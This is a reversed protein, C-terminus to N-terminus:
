KKRRYCRILPSVCETAFSPPFLLPISKSRDLIVGAAKITARKQATGTIVSSRTETRMEREDVIKMILKLSSPLPVLKIAVVVLLLFLLMPMKIQNWFAWVFISCMNISYKKKESGEKMRQEKRSQNIELPMKRLEVELWNLQKQAIKHLIRTWHKFSKKARISRFTGSSTSQHWLTTFTTSLSNRDVITFLFFVRVAVLQFSVCTLSDDRLCHAYGAVVLFYFHFFFVCWRCKCNLSIWCSM